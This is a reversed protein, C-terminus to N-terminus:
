KHAEIGFKKTRVIEEKDLSELGYYLPNKRASMEVEAPIDSIEISKEFSREETSITLENGYRTLYMEIFYDKLGPMPTKIKITINDIVEYSYVIHMVLTALRYISFNNKSLEKKDYNVTLSTNNYKFKM